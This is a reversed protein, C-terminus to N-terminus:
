NKESSEPILFTLHGSDNLKVLSTGYQNFLIETIATNNQGILWAYKPNSQLYYQLVSRILNAHTFVVISIERNEEISQKKAQEIFPELFDTTRKQVMRLSEGKPSSFEIHLESMQKIIENTYCSDRNMGEWMGQSQELLANSTILKSTDINMIKLAIEATQKARIATSSFIYDFKMNQYKLRKGLLVAQENGLSSLTSPINQGCITTFVLNAESEAHRIFYLRVRSTLSTM